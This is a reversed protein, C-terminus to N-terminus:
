RLIVSSSLFGWVGSTELLWLVTLRDPLETAVQGWGLRFLFRALQIVVLPWLWLSLSGHGYLGAVLSCVLCAQSSDRLVLSGVVLGLFLVGLPLVERPVGELLVGLHLIEGHLVVVRPFCLVVLPPSVLPVVGGSRRHLNFWIPPTGQGGLLM